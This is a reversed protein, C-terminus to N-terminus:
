AKPARAIYSQQWGGDGQFFFPVPARQREAAPLALFRETEHLIGRTMGHLDLKRAEAFGVWAIEEFEGDNTPAHHSIATADALFFRADFRRPRGPPTIARAIFSLAALNPSVGHALFPLWAPPAVVPASPGKSGIVLGTEEFTERIAALAFAEPSRQASGRELEDGLAFRDHDALRHAAAFEDDAPDLSGGPFVYKGPAFIQTPRRKGLLVRLTGPAADVIVLSAADRPAEPSAAM